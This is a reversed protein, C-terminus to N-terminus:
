TASIMGSELLAALKKVAAQLTQACERYEEIGEGFPDPMDYNTEVPEGAVGDVYGLLTHMKHEQEPAIVEMQEIHEKSMALIIDAWEALEKTFQEANHKKLSLGMEEMAQMAEATADADECAFTGASGVKVDGRLDSSRDIADDMLTEAMPSRCTNGTCVFLVNM